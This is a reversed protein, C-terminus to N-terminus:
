LGVGLFHLGTCLSVHLAKSLALAEDALKPWFYHVNTGRQLRGTLLM